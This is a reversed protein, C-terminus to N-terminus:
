QRAFPNGPGGPNGKAFRGKADRGPAPPSPKDAHNAQVPSGNFPQPQPHACPDHPLSPNMPPSESPTDTGSPPPIGFRDGSTDCPRSTKLLAFQSFFLVRERRVM